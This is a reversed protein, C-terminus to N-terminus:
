SRFQKEEGCGLCKARHVSLVQGCSPCIWKKGEMELFKPLGYDKIRALNDVISLNYKETYRKNLSKMRACPYKPCEYCYTFEAKEHEPCQRIRCKQCYVPKNLGSSLCGSCKNKERLYGICVACNIGCPAVLEESFIM